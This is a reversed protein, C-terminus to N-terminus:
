VRGMDRQAMYQSASAFLRQAEQAHGEQESIVALRAEALAAMANFRWYFRAKDREAVSLAIIDELAKKAQERDSAYITYYRNCQLEYREQMDRDFRKKESTCGCLLFVATIFVLARM